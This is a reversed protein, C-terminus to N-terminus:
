NNSMYNITCVYLLKNLYEQQIATRNEVIM